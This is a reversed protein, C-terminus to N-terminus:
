INNKSIIREIDKEDKAALFAIAKTTFGTSQAKQILKYNLYNLALEREVKIIKYISGIFYKDIKTLECVREVSMEKRIAEAAILLVDENNKSLEKEFYEKEQDMLDEEIFYDGLGKSKCNVEIICKELNDAKVTYEGDINLLIEKFSPEIYALAGDEEIQDLMEGVLVRELIKEMPFNTAQEILTDTSNLSFKLLKFEFTTQNIAFEFNVNGINKIQESIRIAESRLNQFIRNPITLAPVVSIFRNIFERSGVCICNGDKDRLTEIEVKKWGLFNNEDFTEIKPAEDENVEPLEPVEESVELADEQVEPLEPAEEQIEVVERTEENNETINNFKDFSKNHNKKSM